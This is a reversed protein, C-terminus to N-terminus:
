NGIQPMNVADVVAIDSAIDGTAENILWAKVGNNDISGMLKYVGNNEITADISLYAIYPGSTLFSRNFSSVIQFTHKGPSVRREADTANISGWFEKSYSIEINDIKQIHFQSWNFQSEVNKGSNKILANPTNLSPEIYGGGTACATIFCIVAILSLKNHM